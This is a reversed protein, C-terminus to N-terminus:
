CCSLSLECYLFPIILKLPFRFTSSIFVFKFVLHKYKRLRTFFSCGHSLNNYFLILSCFSNKSILIIFASILFEISPTYYLNLSTGGGLFTFLRLFFSIFHHLPIIESIGNRVLQLKLFIYPSIIYSVVCLYKRM